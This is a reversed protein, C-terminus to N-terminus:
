GNFIEIYKVDKLNIALKANEEFDTSLYKFDGEEIYYDKIVFWSDNGKEEHTCLIGIYIGNGTNIKVRTGNKYDIVDNWVDDHISKHNIKQFLINILKNESLITVLISLLFAIICLILARWYWNFEINYLVRKNIVTFIAKLIYSIVISYLFNYKSVKRSTLYQFSSIFILGPVFFELLLPLNNYIFDFENIIKEEM